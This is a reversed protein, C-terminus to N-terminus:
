AKLFHEGTIDELGGGQVGKVPQNSVRGESERMEKRVMNRDKLIWLDEASKVCFDTGRKHCSVCINYGGIEEGKKWRGRGGAGFLWPDQRGLGSFRWGGSKGWKIFM